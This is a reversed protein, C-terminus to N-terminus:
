KKVAWGGGEMGAKHGQCEERRARADRFCWKVLMKEQASEVTM